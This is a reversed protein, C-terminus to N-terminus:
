KYNSGLGMQLLKKFKSKMTPTKWIRKLVHEMGQVCYYSRWIIWFMFYFNIEFDFFKADSMEFDSLSCISSLTETQCNNKNEMKQVHANRCKFPFFSLFHSFSLSFSLFRSLFLSFSLPFTSIFVYFPFSQCDPCCLFFLRLFISFLSLFSLLFFCLKLHKQHQIRALQM